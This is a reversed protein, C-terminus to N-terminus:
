GGIVYQLWVNFEGETWAQTAITLTIARAATVKIATAGTGAPIINHIGADWPNSGDSVAIAAVLDNAGEIHLAGTGADANETTCTTLVEVFGGIVIANDPITVGLNIAGTAGGETSFLYKAKAWRTIAAFAAEAPVTNGEDLLNLEAATSTVDVGGIDLTTVSIEGAVTVVNDALTILDNDAVCGITGSNKLVIGDDDIDLISVEDVSFTFKGHDATGSATKTNFTISEATKNAGGNLVTIVLAETASTGMSLSVDADNTDDYITLDGTIAPTVLTPSTGFVLAGSGTKDSIVTALEASTTSSMVSLNSTTYVGNTVLGATLDAATGSCNTLVGSAPTGLVPTVLTPSTGFVLAGSGTNDSIVTALEASTTASMVSLNSTTYVGNTVTTANGSLAGSFTTATVVGSSPNYTFSGTDDLLSNSENNFVVPFATNARSDTVTVQTAVGTVEGTINGIISSATLVGCTINANTGTVVESGITADTKFIFGDASHDYGMFGKKVGILDKYYLFSIGRDQNDADTPDTTGGVQLIPDNYVTTVSEITTTTGKVTLDGTITTNGSVALNSGIVADGTINFGSDSSNTPEIDLYKVKLDQLRPM